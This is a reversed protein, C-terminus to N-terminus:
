GKEKLNEKYFDFSPWHRMQSQERYPFYAERLYIGACLRKELGEKLERVLSLYAAQFMRRSFVYFLINGELTEIAYEKKKDSSKEWKRYSKELYRCTREEEYDLAYTEAKIYRLMEKVKAWDSRKFPVQHTTFVLDCDDIVTNPEGLPADEIKFCEPRENKRLPFYILKNTPNFGMVAASYM